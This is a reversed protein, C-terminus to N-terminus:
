KAKKEKKETKKKKPKESRLKMFVSLALGICVSVTGIKWAWPNEKFFDAIQQTVDDFPTKPVPVVESRANKFWDTAFTVFSTVDYKPINYRYMKGQRFLIFTPTELVGFRRSTVGGTTERNVRAINMRTKLRAGVAEWRAQLRQCEISSTAYFMIFWDGTTAGSAAQTLHEFTDDTLEKVIPEKNETITHLILDENIDGDYLLPIGHRFFVIAPEKSPSYLKVLQSSYSSVVWANLSDVLDERINLLATELAECDPCDKKTFLVVVYTETRFLNLLENDDVVELACNSRSVFLCIVLFVVSARKLSFM